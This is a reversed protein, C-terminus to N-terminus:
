ISEGRFITRGRYSLCHCAFTGDHQIDDHYKQFMM